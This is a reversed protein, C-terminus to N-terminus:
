KAILAEFEASTRLPRFHPDFRAEIASPSLCTNLAKRLSHIAENTRKQQAYIRALDYLVAGNEPDLAVAHEGQEISKENQGLRVYALGLTSYLYPNKPDGRLMIESLEVSHKYLETAEKKRGRLESSLGLYYTALFEFCGRERCEIFSAEAKEYDGKLLHVIGTDLYVNPDGGVQVCREYMELAQDFRGERQHTSGLYFYATGYDPAVEVARNFAESAQVYEKKDFHAIGLLLYSERDSPRIELTKQAYEISEDFNRMEEHIWGLTRYAEFFDPKLEVAKQFESIAERHNKREKYVRGLARHAEPLDYDLSLARKAALEAEELLRLSRDYYAEYKYVHVDAMGAYALAYDPDIELAKNYMEVAYELDTKGLKWYYDRGRLYYDYAKISITPRKEIREIQRTTLKVELAQAVRQAVDAQVEFVDDLQRDFRDAWVHFGDSVRILQANIRLRHDAKRVSGEMLYDVNLERGTEKINVPKDRYPLVDNRSLVRIREIKSLDTIIDETMGAAFYDDEKSPGLNDFYLVALAPVAQAKRHKAGLDEQSVSRLDALLEGVSQYRHEKKKELARKVIRELTPPVKRNLEAVPRPDENLISYIVAQSYEGSFPLVGTLMEYLVVGFSFIDAREDVNMGQLQEPPAYLLTGMMSAQTTLASVNKLKALGFDSVKATGDSALMINDSKLDRHVVGKEHAARLGEGVQIAIDLAKAVSIPQDRLLDKLSRGEVFEMSIFCEGECEDIEYVTVINRHSLAAAAQAERFFRTRSMDDSMLRELCFKLAVERGLKMDLAKYVVGMGGEGLKELIKYHSVTKGIM